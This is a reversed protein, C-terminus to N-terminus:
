TQMITLSLYKIFINNHCYPSISQTDRRTSVTLFTPDCEISRMEHSGVKRVNDVRRSLAILIVTSDYYCRYILRHGIALLYTLRSIYQLSTNIQSVSM